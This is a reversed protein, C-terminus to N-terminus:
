DAATLTATVDLTVIDGVLDAFGTAGFTSRAIQGTLQTTLNSLDGPASGRARFVDATLTIPRTTGRVTLRGTITAGGSLRGDQALKVSTSVFRITPHAAADLVSPSKLADTALFLGTRTKAVSLTVDVQAAQLNDPDIVIDARTVPMTGTHPAGNLTFAFGIRSAEADLHYRQPAAWAPGLLSFLMLNLLLIRRIQYAM